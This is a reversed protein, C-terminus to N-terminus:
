REFVLDHGSATWAIMGGDLDFVNQYGLAVLQEAASASMRGSRCYVLIPTDKNAPLSSEYLHINEWDEIILDTGVIEGEYPTHTNLLFVENNALQEYFEESSLLVSESSSTSCAVLFLALLSLIVVSGVRLKNMSCLGFVEKLSYALYVGM